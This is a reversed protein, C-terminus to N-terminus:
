YRYTLAIRNTQGMDGQPTYAYDVYWNEGDRLGVGCTLGKALDHRTSYGMRAVAYDGVECEVGFAGYATEDNPMIADLALTMRSTDWYKFQYAAGCSFTQPLDTEDRVFKLGSGFGSGAVAFTLGEIGPSFRLGADFIVTNDSYTWLRERLFRLTVGAAFNDSLKQGYGVSFMLDSASFSGSGLGNPDAVTTRTIDGTTLYALGVGLGAGQGVPLPLTLAFNEYDVMGLWDNHMATFEPRPTAALGAANFHLAENGTAVATYAGMAGATPYPNIKLFTAGNTGADDALVPLALLPLALLAALLRRLPHHM